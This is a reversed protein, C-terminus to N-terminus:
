VDLLLMHQVMHMFFLHDALTDVPSVLAILAVILSGLFCCLRWVPADAPRASPSFRVRRWRALYAAGVMAVGILAGPQFTWSLNPSMTTPNEGMEPPASAQVSSRSANSM